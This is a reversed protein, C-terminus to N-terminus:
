QSAMFEISGLSHSYFSLIHANKWKEEGGADFKLELAAIETELYLELKDGKRLM